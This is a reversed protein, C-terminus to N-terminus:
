RSDEAPHIEVLVQGREVQEGERCRVRTVVSAQPATVRIEMKMAELVVLTAGREVRDGAQVAVARVLAPMQAELPRDAGRAGAARRIPDVRELRYSRGESFVFLRQPDSAVHFRRRRDGVMLDLVGEAFRMVRVAYARGNVEVLHGEGEPELSVRFEASEVRYRREMAM